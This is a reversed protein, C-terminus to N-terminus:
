ARRRITVIGVSIHAIITIDIFSSPDIVKKKIASAAAFVKRHICVIGKSKPVNVFIMDGNRSNKGKRTSPARSASLSPDERVVGQFKLIRRRPSGESTQNTFQRRYRNTNVVSGM